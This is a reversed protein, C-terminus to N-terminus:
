HGLSTGPFTASQRLLSRDRDERLYFLKETDRQRM